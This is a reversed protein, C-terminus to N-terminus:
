RCKIIKGDMLNFRFDFFVSRECRNMKLEKLFLRNGFSEILNQANIMTVNMKYLSCQTCDKMEKPRKLCKHWVKQIKVVEGVAIYKQPLQSVSM